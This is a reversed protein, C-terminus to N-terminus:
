PAPTPTAAPSCPAARRLNAFMTPLADQYSCEILMREAEVPLVFFAKSPFAFTPLGPLVKKRNGLGPDELFTVTAVLFKGFLFSRIHIM